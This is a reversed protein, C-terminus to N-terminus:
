ILERRKVELYRNILEIGIREAPAELCLVGLRRLRDFVVQRDHLFDHAISARAIDRFSGPRAEATGTLTPDRLTVFLVLHRDSLRGLNRLMLEAMVTDVFETMVVLLSRRKLRGLLDMLGLTFNTEELRYDLRAMELQIRGFNQVNGVPEAFQRVRADFGFVGVRDGARLSMYSMLLAANVMHDLRPMRGMPESMLHGCDFAFVVQQNREAQFEKSMLRRHRASHKWDISRHDLGPIYERLSEFDTGGGQQRQPKIGFLADRQAFRLGLTRVPRVDPTVQIAQDVEVRHIWAMLGLPGTWRLWIREVRGTGRRNAALPVIVTGDVGPQLAIVTPPVPLLPASLACLVECRPAVARGSTRVRLRLSDDGGIYLLEPADVEATVARRRPALVADLAITFAVIAAVAAGLGWLEEDLLALALCAAIGAAGLLIARPTPHM